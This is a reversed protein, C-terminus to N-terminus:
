ESRKPKKQSPIGCHTNLGLDIVFEAPIGKPNSDRQPRWVTGYKSGGAM